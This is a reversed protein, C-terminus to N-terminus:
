SVILKFLISSYFMLFCSTLKSSSNINIYILRSYISSYEFNESDEGAENLNSKRTVSSQSNQEESTESDFSLVLPLDFDNEDSIGLFLTDALFPDIINELEFAAMSFPNVERYRKAQYPTLYGVNTFKRLVNTDIKEFVQDPILPFIDASIQNLDNIALLLNPRMLLKVSDRESYFKAFNKNLQYKAFESVISNDPCDLNDFIRDSTLIEIPLMVIKRRPIGCLFRGMTQIEVENLKSITLRHSTTYHEFAESFQAKSWNSYSLKNVVHTNLFNLHTINVSHVFYPLIHRIRLIEEPRLNKLGNWSVRDYIAKQAEYNLMASKERTLKELMRDFQCESMIQIDKSTLIEFPLLNVFNYEWKPGNCTSKFEERNLQNLALTRIQSVCENKPDPDGFNDGNELELTLLHWLQSRDYRLMSEKLYNEIDASDFINCLSNRLSSIHDFKLNQIEGIKSSLVEGQAKDYHCEQLYDLNNTFTEGSVRNLLKAPVFCNLKGLILIDKTDVTCSEISTCKKCQEFYVEALVRNSVTSYKEPNTQGIKMFIDKCKDSSSFQFEKLRFERFVEGILTKINLDSLEGLSFQYDYLVYWVDRIKQAIVQMTKRDTVETQELYNYIVDFFYLPNINRIDSPSLGRILKKLSWSIQGTLKSSGLFSRFQSFVIRSIKPSLEMDIVNSSSGTQLFGKVPDFQLDFQKIDLTRSILNTSNMAELLDSSYEVFKARPCAEIIM